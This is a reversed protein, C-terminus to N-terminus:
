SFSISSSIETGCIPCVKKIQLWQCICESHYLHGCCLAALSEGEEYEFQCVVCRDIESKNEGSRFKVARLCSSIEKPSLGRKEVGIIEGLTILDEYSLEDPNIDDEEDSSDHGELLEGEDEFGFCNFNNDNSSEESADSESDSEFRGFMTFDGDQERFIAALAFEWDDQDLQDFSERNSSNGTNQNEEM